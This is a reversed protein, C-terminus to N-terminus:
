ESQCNKGSTIVKSKTADTFKELFSQMDSIAYNIFDNRFTKTRLHKIQHTYTAADATDTDTDSSRPEPSATAPVKNRKVGIKKLASELTSVVKLIIRLVNM